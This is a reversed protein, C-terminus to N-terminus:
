STKKPIIDKQAVFWPFCTKSLPILILCVSIVFLLTIVYKVGSNIDWIELYPKILNLIVCHFGLTIISYRGLYSIIPLKNIIKAFLLISITGLLGCIYCRWLPISYHNAIYDVRGELLLMLVICLLAICSLLISNYKTQLVNTKQKVLYGFAFFPVATFSTGIFGWNRIGKVSLFNGLVGFLLCIAIIWFSNYKFHNTLWIVPYCIVNIWLLSLLFWIPTNLWIYTDIFLNAFINIGCNFDGYLHWGFKSSLYPLACAFVLYFFLFPVLLKNVKRKIFGGFGEYLKFFLGSLFYYLPMRCTQFIDYDYIFDYGTFNATHRLVVLLICFGKALDIFEIREGIAM